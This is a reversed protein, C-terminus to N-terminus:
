TGPVDELLADIEAPERASVPEAEGPVPVFVRPIGVTHLLVGEKFAIWDM